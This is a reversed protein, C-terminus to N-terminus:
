EGLRDGCMWRVIAADLHDFARFLGNIFGVGILRAYM